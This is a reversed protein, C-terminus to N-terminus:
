ESRDSSEVSVGRAIDYIRQVSPQRLQTPSEGQTMLNYAHGVIEALAQRLTVCEAELDTLRSDSVAGPPRSSFGADARCGCEAAAAGDLEATLRKVDGRLRLVETVAEDYCGRLDGVADMLAAGASAPECHWENDGDTDAGTLVYASWMDSLLGNVLRM